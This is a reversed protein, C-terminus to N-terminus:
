RVVDAYEQFSELTRGAARLQIEMANLYRTCNQLANRTERANGRAEVVEALAYAAANADNFSAGHIRATITGVTLTVSDDDHAEIRM